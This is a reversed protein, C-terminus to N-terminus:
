ERWAIGGSSQGSAQHPGTILRQGAEPVQPRWPRRLLEQRGRAIVDGERRDEGHM